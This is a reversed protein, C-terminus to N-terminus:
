IIMQTFRRYEKPTYAYRKKFIKYFHALSSFGYPIGLIVIM